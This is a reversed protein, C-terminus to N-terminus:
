ISNITYTWKDLFLKKKPYYCTLVMTLKNNAPLRNPLNGKTGKGTFKDILFVPLLFLDRCLSAGSYTDGNSSGGRNM